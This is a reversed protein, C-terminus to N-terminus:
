DQPITSSRDRSGLIWARQEPTEPVPCGRAAAVQRIAAEPDVGLHALTCAAVLAARGLGQRCHIAVSKGAKLFTALDILLKAFAAPSVPVARDVIPFSVFQIGLARCQQEENTLSLEDLEEHTLLSAIVSVGARQWSRVEDELWDGGRPRPALALRGPWTGAVFYLPTLM